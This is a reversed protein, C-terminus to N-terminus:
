LAIRFSCQANLCHMSHVLQSPVAQPMVGHEAPAQVAHVQQLPTALTMTRETRRTCKPHRTWICTECACASFSICWHLFHIKAIVTAKIAEVQPVRLNDRVLHICGAWQQRPLRCVATRSMSCLQYYHHLCDHVAVGIIDHASYYIAQRVIQMVIATKRWHDCSMPRFVGRTAVQILNIPRQKMAHLIRGFLHLCRTHWHM